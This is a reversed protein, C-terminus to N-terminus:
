VPSRDRSSTVGSLGEIAYERSTVLRGEGTDKEEHDKDKIGCSSGLRLARVDCM